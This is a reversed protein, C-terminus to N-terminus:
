EASLVTRVPRRLDALAPVATAVAMLVAVLAAALLLAPLGANFPVPHGASTLVALELTSAVVVAIGALLLGTVAVLRTELVAIRATQAPGAGAARLLAQKRSRDRASILVGAAAGISAILVPGGILLAIGAGVSSSTGIGALAASTHAGALLAVPRGAAVVVAALGAGVVVPLLRRGRDVVDPDRLAAIPPTGAVRRSPGGAALVVVVAAVLAVM